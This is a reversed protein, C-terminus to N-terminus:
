VNPRSRRGRLIAVTGFLFTLGAAAFGANMEPAAAPAGAPAAAVQPTTTLPAAAAHGGGGPTTSADFGRRMYTFGRRMYTDVPRIAAPERLVSAMADSQSDVAVPARMLEAQGRSQPSYWFDSSFQTARNDAHAGFPAAVAITMFGVWWKVRM